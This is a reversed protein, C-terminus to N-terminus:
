RPLADVAAMIEDRQSAPNFATNGIVLSPTGSLELASAQKAVAELELKCNSAIDGDFRTLDLGLEGAIARVDEATAKATAADWLREHLESFKGQNTAACAALSYHELPDRVVWHKYDVRVGDAVLEDVLTGAKSCHYGYQCFLTVKRSADAPGLSSAYRADTRVVTSDATMPPGHVCRAHAHGGAGNYIHGNRLNVVWKEGRRTTSVDEGSWLKGLRPLGHGLAPKLHRGTDEDGTFMSDLEARTPLRWGTGQDVCYLTAARVALASSSALDAWVVGTDHDTVGSAVAAKNPSPSPAPAPKATTTRADAVVAPEDDNTQASKSSCAVLVM